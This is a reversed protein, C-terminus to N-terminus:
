EGRRENLKCRRDACPDGGQARFVLIAENQNRSMRDLFYTRCGAGDDFLFTLQDGTGTKLPITQWNGRRLRFQIELPNVQQIAVIVNPGGLQKM